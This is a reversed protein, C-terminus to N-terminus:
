HNIMLPMLLMRLNTDKEQEIPLLLGAKSPDSLEMRMEAGPLNCILELIATGKFGIKLPNGNYQCVLKEEGSLSYNIDEATLTLLNEEFNFKVLATTKDAVVMLRRIASILSVRDITAVNDNMKPIVSEYNPYKEEILCCNIEYSEVNITAYSRGTTHITVDGKQKELITKLINAPKQPLVFQNTVGHTDCLLHFCVLQHGDSAVVSLGDEKVDLLIGCMVKRAETPAAAVIAKTFASTLVASNVTLDYNEGEKITQKPYNDAVEGQFSFHGNLYTLDIQLSNSNIDLTLPQEPVEKLIDMLRKSDLAFRCDGNAEQMEMSTKITTDGDSATVQMIGERIDFLFCSLIEISNKLPIVREM